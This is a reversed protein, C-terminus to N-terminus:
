SSRRGRAMRAGIMVEFHTVGPPLVTFWWVKRGGRRKQKRAFPTARMNRSSYRKDPSIWRKKHKGKAAQNEDFVARPGQTLITYNPDFWVCHEYYWQDSLDKAVEAKAYEFRKQVQTPSLASQSVPSLQGWPLRAGKDYCDNKFVDLIIKKDFYEGTDPNVTAKTCRQRVLNVTPEIGKGLKLGEASKKVCLRMHDTFKRKRGQGEREEMSKGPHWEKDNAFVAESKAIDDLTLGLNHKENVKTLAWVQAQSLASLTGKRGGTWFEKAAKARTAKPM